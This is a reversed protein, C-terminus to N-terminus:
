KLYSYERMLVLYAPQVMIEPDITVPLEARSVSQYM